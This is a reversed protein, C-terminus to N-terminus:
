CKVPNFGGGCCSATPLQAGNASARPASVRSHWAGAELSRWLWQLFARPIVLVATFGSHMLRAPCVQVLQLGVLVCVTGTSELMYM